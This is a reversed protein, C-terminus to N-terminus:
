PNGRICRVNSKCPRRNGRASGKPRAADATTADVVRVRRGRWAAASENYKGGDGCLSSVVAAVGTLPLQARAACYSSESFKEKSLTRLHSIATNGHLVQLIFLGMTRAPTLMRDRWVHGVGAFCADVKEAGGLLVLPDSKIRALTSAIIAM